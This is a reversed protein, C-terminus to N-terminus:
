GYGGGGDGMMTDGLYGGVVTGILGVVLAWRSSCSVTVIILYILIGGALGGIFSFPFVGMEGIWRRAFACLFFIVVLGLWAVTFGGFFGTDFGTGTMINCTHYAAKTSNTAAASVLPLIDLIM